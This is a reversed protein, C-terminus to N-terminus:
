RGDSYFRGRMSHAISADDYVSDMLRRPTTELLATHYKKRERQHQDFAAKITDAVVGLNPAGDNLTAVTEGLRGAWTYADANKRESGLFRLIMNDPLFDVKGAVAWVGENEDWTWDALNTAALVGMPDYCDDGDRLVGFGFKFDGSRLAGVWTEIAVQDPSLINFSSVLLAQAERPEM